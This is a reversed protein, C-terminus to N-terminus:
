HNIFSKYKFSIITWLLAALTVRVDFLLSQHGAFNVQLRINEGNIMSFAPVLWANLTFDDTDINAELKKIRFTHLMDAFTGLNSIQWKRKKKDRSKGGRKEKKQQFPDFKFPIVFIRGRIVFLDREPTLIVKFIGPLKLHYMNRATNTYIIVPVFLVWLLFIIFLSIILYGIM